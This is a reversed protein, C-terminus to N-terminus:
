IIKETFTVLIESVSIKIVFGRRLFIKKERRLIKGGFRGSLESLLAISDSPEPLLHLEL